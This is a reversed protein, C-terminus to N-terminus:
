KSKLAKKTARFKDAIEPYNKKFAEFEKTNSDGFFSSKLQVSHMNQYLKHGRWGLQPIFSDVVTCYRDVMEGKKHKIAEKLEDPLDLLGVLVSPYKYSFSRLISALSDFASASGNKLVFSLARAIPRDHLMSLLEEEYSKKDAIREVASADYRHVLEDCGLLVHFSKSGKIKSILNAFLALADDNKSKILIDLFKGKFYQGVDSVKMEKLLLGLKAEVSSKNSSSVSNLVIQLISRFSSDLDGGHVPIGEALNLLFDCFADPGFKDVMDKVRSQNGGLFHLYVLNPKWESLVPGVDYGIAADKRYKQFDSLADIAGQVEGSRGSLKEGKKQEINKINLSQIITNKIKIKVDISSPNRTSKGVGIVKQSQVDGSGEVKEFQNLVSEEGPLEVCNLVSNWGPLGSIDLASGLQMFPVIGQEQGLMEILRRLALVEPSDQIKQVVVLSIAEDYIVKDKQLLTWVANEHRSAERRCIEAVDRGWGDVQAIPRNQLQSIRDNEVCVEVEELTMTDLPHFITNLDPLDIKNLSPYITNTM